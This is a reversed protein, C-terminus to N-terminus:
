SCPHQRLPRIRRQTRQSSSFDEALVSTANLVTRRGEGQMAPVMASCALVCCRQVNIKGKQTLAMAPSTGGTFIMNKKLIPQIAEHTSSCHWRGHWVSFMCFCTELFQTVSPGRNRVGSYLPTRLAHAERFRYKSNQPGSPARRLRLFVCDSMNPGVCCSNSNIRPPPLPRNQKLNRLLVPGM